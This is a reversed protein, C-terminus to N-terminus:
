LSGREITIVRSENGDADALYSLYTVGYGISLEHQGPLLYLDFDSSTCTANAKVYVPFDLVTISLVKSAGAFTINQTGGDAITHDYPQVCNSLTRLYLPHGQRDLPMEPLEKQIM